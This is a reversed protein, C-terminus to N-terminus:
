LEESRARRELVEGQPLTCAKGRLSKEAYRASHRCQVDEILLAEAVAMDAAELRENGQARRVGAGLQRNMSHAEEGLKSNPDQMAAVTSLVVQLFVVLGFQATSADENNDVVFHLLSRRFQSLPNQRFLRRVKSVIKFM